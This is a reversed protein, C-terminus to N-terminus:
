LKKAKVNHRLARIIGLLFNARPVKQMYSKYVDGFKEIGSEDGEVIGLYFIIMVPIGIFTVLWNQAILILALGLFIGGLFQPHRVIAYIGSDVFVTTKVFSQGKQVGGKRRLEFIPM